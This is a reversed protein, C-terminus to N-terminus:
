ELLEFGPREFDAGGAHPDVSSGGASSARCLIQGVQTPFFRALVYLLELGLINSVHINQANPVKNSGFNNFPNAQPAGLGRPRFVEEPLWLQARSRM